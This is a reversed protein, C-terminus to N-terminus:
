STLALTRPIEVLRVPVTYREPADTEAGAVAQEHWECLYIQSLDTDMPSFFVPRVQRNELDNLADFVTLILADREDQDLRIWSLDFVRVVANVAGYFKGSNTRDRQGTRIKGRFDGLDFTRNLRTYGGLFLDSIRLYGDPNGPNTVQLRWYQLTSLPPGLFYLLAGSQWPVARSTAIPAFGSNNAGQLVISASSTFNHDLVALVAPTLASGFDFTLSQGVVSTSRWETDRDRDLVKRRHYPLYAKFRWVDGDVVDNGAGQTWRVTLGNNLAVPSTSTSVGTAVFTTGGDQSWRFTTAGIEGTSEIEIYYDLDNTGSYSGGLIASASGSGEKQPRSAVGPAQTSAVIGGDTDPIMNTHLFSAKGSRILTM